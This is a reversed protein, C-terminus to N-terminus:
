LVQLKLCTKVNQLANLESCANNHFSTYFATFALFAETKNVLSLSFFFHEKFTFVVFEIWQWWSSSVRRWFPKARTTKLLFVQSAATLGESEWSGGSTLAASNPMQDKPGRRRVCPLFSIAWSTLERQQPSLLNPEGRVIQWRRTQKGEGLRPGVKMWILENAPLARPAPELLSGWLRPRWGSFSAQWRVNASNAYFAPENLHFCKWEFSQGSFPQKSSCYKPSRVSSVAKSHTPNATKPKTGLFFDATSNWAKCSTSQQAEQICNLPFTHFM